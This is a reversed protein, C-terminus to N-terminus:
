GRDEHLRVVSEGDALLRLREYVEYACVVVVPRGYKEVVVPEARAMDILKGFGYKADKASINKM